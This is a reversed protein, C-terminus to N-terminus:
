SGPRVALSAVAAVLEAPDVPKSLHAQYGAILVKTRDESRAYATLALAPIRHTTQSELERVRKILTYGDEGPMGIDSLLVDPRWSQLLALAEQATAATRVQAGSVSLITELLERSDTEDDVALVRVGELRAAEDISGEVPPRVGSESFAQRVAQLPLHVTFVTGQDEGASEAVVSGGHLEVLHRVIALGLGLGGYARSSSGDGQRFREFVLPLLAQSIGVGTDSVVIEIHSDIRLLQVQVRGGKPTFKVANSLLNWVVQQLRGSDGAVPGAEPDLVATLRIGKAEAAPHVTDLAAEIVTVLDVPQVELRLKGSIIRSVDLIDEILQNQTRANREITELARHTAAQAVKGALLMQTWGLIANLPTRLEHSVTALFEDKLRNAEILRESQQALALETLKRETVDRFYISLGESSPYAHVEVWCNLPEYFIEFHAPIQETLARRYQWEVETGVSQPWVEWHIRGLIQEPALGNLRAAAANIYTVRWDRDLAVFNDSISELIDSVRKQATEAVRRAEREAETAQRRLRSYPLIPRM